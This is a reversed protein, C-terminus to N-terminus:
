GPTYYCEYMTLNCTTEEIKAIESGWACGTMMTAAIQLHPQGSQDVPEDSLREGVHHGLNVREPM